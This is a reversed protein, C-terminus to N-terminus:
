RHKEEAYIYIYIEFNQIKHTVFIRCKTGKSHLDHKLFVSLTSELIYLFTKHDPIM